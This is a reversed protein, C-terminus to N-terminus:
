PTVATTGRGGDERSTAVFSAGATRIVHYGSDRITYTEKLPHWGGGPAMAVSLRRFSYSFSNCANASGGGWSEATAVPRWSAHSGPLHVPSGVANGNVWVRWWNRKHAMELVAVSRTLGIPLATAVETYVPARGPRAVEYYLNSQSSGPFASFGVQIWETSGHPGLGVGGVGVWGAVHGSQVFPPATAALRTGVGYTAHTAQVGAYTYGASGCAFAAVPAALAAIAALVAVLARPPRTM